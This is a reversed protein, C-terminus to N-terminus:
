NLFICNVDLLFTNRKVVIGAIGFQKEYRELITENRSTMTLNCVGHAVTEAMKCLSLPFFSVGLHRMEEPHFTAM